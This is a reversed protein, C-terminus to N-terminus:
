VPSRLDDFFVTAIERLAEQRCCAVAVPTGGVRQHVTDVALWFRGENCM